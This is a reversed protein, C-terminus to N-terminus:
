LKVCQMWVFDVVVSTKVANNANALVLRFQKTHEHGRVSLTCDDGYMGLVMLEPGSTSCPDM